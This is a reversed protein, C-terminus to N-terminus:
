SGREAYSPAGRTWPPGSGWNLRTRKKPADPDYQECLAAYQKMTRTGETLSWFDEERSFMGNGAYELVTMGPFDIPPQSAQPNDRRNQMYVVVRDGDIMHWEYATYIEGYEEMTPKIWARVAERGNKHGLVHEIYTVDETFCTDCWADWNEGVAGLQWYRRFASEVEDHDFAM